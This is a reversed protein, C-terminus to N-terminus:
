VRGAAKRRFRQINTFVNDMIAAQDSVGMYTHGVGILENHGPHHAEDFASANAEAVLGGSWKAAAGVYETLCRLVAADIDPMDLFMIMRGVALGYGYLLMGLIAVSLDGQQWRPDAIVLKALEGLKKTLADQTM